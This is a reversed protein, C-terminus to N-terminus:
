VTDVPNVPRKPEDSDDDGCATFTAVVSVAIFTMFLFFSKKM